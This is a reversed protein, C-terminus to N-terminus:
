LSLLFISDTQEWPKCTPLHLQYQKTTLDLSEISEDMISDDAGSTTLSLSVCFACTDSVVPKESSCTSVIVEASLRCSCCLLECAIVFVMMRRDPFVPEAYFCLVVWFSARFWCVLTALKVYRTLLCAERHLCFPAASVLKVHSQPLSCQRCRSGKLLLISKVTNNGGVQLLTM